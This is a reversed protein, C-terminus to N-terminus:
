EATGNLAIVKDNLATDKVILEAERAGIKDQDEKTQAGLLRIQTQQESVTKKEAELAAEDRKTRFRFIFVWDIGATLIYLLSCAAPSGAM